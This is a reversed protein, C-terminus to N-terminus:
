EGNDAYEAVNVEVGLAGAKKAVEEFLARIDQEKDEEYRLLISAMKCRERVRPPGSLHLTLLDDMLERVSQYRHVPKRACSKLIVRRLGASLSPNFIVPDPVDQDVHLRMLDVPDKEQYPRRGTVMEYATIGLSYIDSRIDAPEGEIKEPPAYYLTGSLGVSETDTPCALGFDMIKIRDGPLVAINEPKIDQHVIGNDHAYSLGECIQLFFGLARDTSLAGGRELLQRLSQGELYEMIIFMTRYMEEIDFVQVICPHKLRAIIAAEERFKQQFGPMMAMDHRLMKVAVPMNLFEHVGRYVISWGGSGIKQNILYKGIRRDATVPSTEFRRAVIETLFDRIEPYQGAAREFHEKELKWLCADTVAHVAASRPEGTIVAMEGLIEGRGMHNVEHVQDGVKICVRCYGEQILYVADGPEGQDFLRGGACLRRRTVHTLLYLVAPISLAGMLDSRMLFAIDDPSMPPCWGHSSKDQFKLGAQVHDDVSMTWVQRFAYHEWEGRSLSFQLDIPGEQPVPSLCEVMVGGKSLDRVAVFAYQGQGSDDGADSKWCAMGIAHPDIPSRPFARREEVKGQKRESRLM